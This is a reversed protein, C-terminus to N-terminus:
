SEAQSFGLQGEENNQELFQSQENSSVSGGGHSVNATNREGKDRGQTSLDDEGYTSDHEEYSDMSDSLPLTTRAEVLKLFFFVLDM